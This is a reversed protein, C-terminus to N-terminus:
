IRKYVDSLETFFAERKQKLEKEYETLEDDTIARTAIAAQPYVAVSTDYENLLRHCRTEGLLLLKAGASRLERDGEYIENELKTLEAHKAGSMPEGPATDVLWNITAQWYRLACQDFSAVQQAVVELIERKRQSREKEITKHHNAEALWYTAFGSILAGLGIKVASDVVDIPTIM